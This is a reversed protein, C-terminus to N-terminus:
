WLKPILRPTRKKYERYEDGFRDILIVEEEAISAYLVILLALTPLLVLLNAAMLALATLSIFLGLYIPHRVIGYLGTTVLVTDRRVGSVSPAWNKGLVWYGWLVWSLGLVAVGVMTLRFWDPLPISFFMALSPLSIYFLAGGFYIAALVLATVRLRGEHTTTQRRASGKASYNVVTLSVFFILWLISFIARFFLEEL